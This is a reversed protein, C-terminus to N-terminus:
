QNGVFDIIYKAAQNSNKPFEGYIESIKAMQAQPEEYNALFSEASNLDEIQALSSFHPWQNQLVATPVSQFVSDLVATSAHSICADVEALVDVIESYRMPGTWRDSIIFNSNKEALLRFFDAGDETNRARHTRYIFLTKPYKLVMEQIIYKGRHIDSPTFRFTENYNTCILVKRDFGKLFQRFEDDFARPPCLRDKAFGFAKCRERVEKSLWSHEYNQVNEWTLILQAAFSVQAGSQVPWNFGFQIAGHQILVTPINFLRCLLDKPKKKKNHLIPDTLALFASTRFLISTLLLEYGLVSKIRTDIGANKLTTLITHNRRLLKRSLLVTPRINSHRQLAVLIPTLVEYQPFNSIVALIIKPKPQENLPKLLKDIGVNEM